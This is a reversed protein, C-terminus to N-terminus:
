SPFFEAMFTFLTTRKYPHFSIKWAANRRRQADQNKPHPAKKGQSLNM